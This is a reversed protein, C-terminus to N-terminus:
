LIKLLKGSYTGEHKKLLELHAGCTVRFICIGYELTDKVAEWFINRSIKETIGSINWVNSKAHM